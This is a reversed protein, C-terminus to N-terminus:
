ERNTRIYMVHWSELNNKCNMQMQYSNNNYLWFPNATTLNTNIYM